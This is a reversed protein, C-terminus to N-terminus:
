ITALVSCEIRFCAGAMQQKYTLKAQNAECFSMSLYLGLGTGNIKTSFFPQFLQNIHQPSVGDGFDKVEIYIRHQQQYASVMVRNIGLHNHQVANRILNILVHKLQLEDFRITLPMDAIIQVFEAIDFLDEQLLKLLFDNLQIITPSIQQHRLMNLNDEIIHNIRLAHKQIIACLQTQDQVQSDLYLSNAQLIAALPNKIEHALSASIQGLAALKLQQIHQNIRQSDQIILLSLLQPPVSLKQLTILTTTQNLSPNFQFQEGEQYAHHQLQQFLKPHAHQLALNEPSLGQDLGLLHRAAPNTLVINQQQDLVLYGTDIQELIHRNINQWQQLALAQDLNAHKLHQFNKAISQAFIYIFLFLIMLLLNNGLQNLSSFVFFHDIINQGLLSIITILTILLAPKPELLISAAFVVMIFLWSLHLHPEHNFFIFSSYAIIDIVFFLTIATHKFDSPYQQKYFILQLSSITLYAILSLFYLTFYSHDLSSHWATFCCLLLLGLAIMCRYSGYWLALHYRDLETHSFRM